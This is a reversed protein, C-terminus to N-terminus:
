SVFQWGIIAGWDHAVLIVKKRDVNFLVITYFQLIFLKHFSKKKNCLVLVLKEGTIRQSYIEYIWFTITIMVM